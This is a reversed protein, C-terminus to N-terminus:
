QTRERDPARERDAGSPMDPQRMFWDAAETVRTVLEAAVLQEIMHQDALVLRTNFFARAAEQGQACATLAEAYFSSRRSLNSPAYPIQGYKFWFEEFWGNGYHLILPNQSYRHRQFQHRLLRTKLKRYPAYRSLQQALPNQGLLRRQWQAWPGQQEPLFFDHPGDPVPQAAVRVASKGNAYSYFWGAPIQSIGAMLERQVLSLTKGSMMAPNRKFLTLDCFPHAVDSKDPLVELNTFNVTAIGENALSQFLDGVTKRPSGFFQPAYLLEDRDIHLVWDYGHEAALQLGVAVNLLQRQWVQQPQLRTAQQQYFPTQQWRDHLQQDNHIITVCDYPALEAAVLDGPDDLFFFFHDFGIFQHYAIFAGITSGGGRVMSIIAARQGIDDTM